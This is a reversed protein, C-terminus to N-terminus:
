RRRLATSIVRVRAVSWRKPSDSAGRYAARECDVYGDDTFRGTHNDFLM